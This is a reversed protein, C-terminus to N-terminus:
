FASLAQKQRGQEDFNEPKLWAELRKKAAPWDSDIMSLWDTDRTRGKYVM